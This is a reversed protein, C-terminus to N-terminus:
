GKAKPTPNKEEVKAKGFIRKICKVIVVILLIVLLILLVIACVIMAFYKNPHAIRASFSTDEEVVKRGEEQRYREPVNGIGDGDTDEFSEMYNAIAVWAKLEKGEEYIIADSFNTIETGDAFKPVISLIGHSVKTVESLMQGSYLDSVVRYLKDDELEIREGQWDTLYVDTVKNLLMRHPNYSFNLGSMYLRSTPMLESVTADIEASTKLEKGTLYVEVLPYGPIGDEGIGLSFSRFVDSVTINGMPYTDRVTGAPVVAMQVTEGNFDKAHEVAYRYADSMINGLNLETHKKELDSLECFEVENTVLVQDKNYGFQELYIEDVMEMFTDIEKQTQEDKEIESTIPILEYDVMSWRGNEKQKMSLSGLNKGYEGPAVVYTDGHQIPEELATHTHGSIILDLEPVKQALIEDESKKIDNQNTGSHSLCVYMDVDEKADQIEKMTDSVAEVPNEFLLACTPACALADEGFVGMLAIRVGNKEVITYDKVGYQEFAEKLLKQEENLGQGEMAEWDVNCLLLEPLAEAKESATELMNALGQSRYDFEHNGLTTAEVGMYGLIRLEAAEEEFVTQVLTGMSFDGGDVLLTEPNKQRQEKILSNIRAMGGVEKTEGDVMTLFSDMYSHTDSLFMIDVTKTEEEALVKSPHVMAGGFLMFATMGFAINRKWKKM